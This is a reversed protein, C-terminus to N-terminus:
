GAVEHPHPTWCFWCKGVLLHERWHDAQLIRGLPPHDRHDVDLNCYELQTQCECANWKEFFRVFVWRTQFAWFICKPLLLWSNKYKQLDLFGKKWLKNIKANKWINSCDETVKQKGLYPEKRPVNGRVDKFNSEM